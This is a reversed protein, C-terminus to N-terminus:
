SSKKFVHQVYTVKVGDHSELLFRPAEQSPCEIRLEESSAWRLQVDPGCYGAFVLTAGFSKLPFTEKRVYVGIGYPAPGRGYQQGGGEDMLYAEALVSGSPSLASAELIPNEHRWSIEHASLWGAMIVLAGVILTSYKM